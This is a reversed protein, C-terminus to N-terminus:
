QYTNVKLQVRVGAAERLVSMVTAVLRM